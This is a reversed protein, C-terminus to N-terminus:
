NCVQLKISHKESGGASSFHVTSLLINRNVIYYKHSLKQQDTEGQTLAM